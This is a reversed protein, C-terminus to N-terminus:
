NFIRRECFNVFEILKLFDETSKNKQNMEVVDFNQVDIDVDVFLTIEIDHYIVDFM